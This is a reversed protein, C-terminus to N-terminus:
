FAEALSEERARATGTSANSAIPGKENKGNAEYPQAADSPEPPRPAEVHAAQGAHISADGKGNREGVRDFFGREIEKLQSWLGLDASGLETEMRCDGLEMQAEGVVTPKLALGPILALAEIWMEKDQAPVHIRVSTSNALQGLAVRVAGTLLLPDMQAERRLIRAAIALALRVSEQELQHLYHEKEEHFSTVLSAAQAHLRGREAELERSSEERAAALGMNMGLSRGREEAKMSEASLLAALEQEGLGTGAGTDSGNTNGGGVQGVRATSDNSGGQAHGTGM